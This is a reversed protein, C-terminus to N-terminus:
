HVFPLARILDPLVAPTRRDLRSRRQSGPPALAAHGASLQPGAAPDRLVGPGGAGGGAARLLCLGDAPAPVTGARSVALVDAVLGALRLPGAALPGVAAPLRLGAPCHRHDGPARRVVAHFPLPITGRARSRW